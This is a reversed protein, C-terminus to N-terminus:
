RSDVFRKIANEVVVSMIMGHKQCVEKFRNKYNKSIFYNVREKENLQKNMNESEVSWM